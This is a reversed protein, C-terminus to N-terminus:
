FIRPDLRRADVAKQMSDYGVWVDIQHSAKSLWEIIRRLRSALLRENGSASSYAYVSGDPSIRILISQEEVIAGETLKMRKKSSRHDTECDCM